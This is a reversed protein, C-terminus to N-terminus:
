HPEATLDFFAVLNELAKARNHLMAPPLAKIAKEKAIEIDEVERINRSPLLISCDTKGEWGV